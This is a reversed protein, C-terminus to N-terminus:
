NVMCRSCPHSIKHPHVKNLRNQSPKASQRGGNTSALDRLKAVRWVRGQWQIPRVPRVGWQDELSRTDSAWGGGGIWVFWWRAGNQDDDLLLSRLAVQCQLISGASTLFQFSIYWIRMTIATNRAELRYHFEFWKISAVCLSLILICWLLMRKKRSVM